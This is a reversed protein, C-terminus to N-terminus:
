RVVVALHGKRAAAKGMAAEAGELSNKVFTV